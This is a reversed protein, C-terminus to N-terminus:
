ERMEVVRTMVPLAVITCFRRADEAPAAALRIAQWGISTILVLIWCREGVEV